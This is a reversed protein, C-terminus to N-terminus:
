GLYDGCNKCTYDPENPEIDHTNYFVVGYPHGRLRCLMRRWFWYRNWSEAFGELSYKILDIM